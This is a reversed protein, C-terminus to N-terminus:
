TFLELIHSETITPLAQNLNPNIAYKKIIMEVTRHYVIHFNHMM